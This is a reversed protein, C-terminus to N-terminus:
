GTPYPILEEVKINLQQQFLKEPTSSHSKSTMIKYLNKKIIEEIQL